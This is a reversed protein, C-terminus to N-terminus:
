KKFHHACPLTAGCFLPAGNPPFLDPFVLSMKANPWAPLTRRFLWLTGEVILSWDSSAWLFAAAQQDMRCFRPLCFSKEQKTWCSLATVPEQPTKTASQGRTTEPESKASTNATRSTTSPATLPFSPTTNWVTKTPTIHTGRLGRHDTKGVCLLICEM